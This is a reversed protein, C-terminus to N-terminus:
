FKYTLLIESNNANLILKNDNNGYRKLLSKNKKDLIVIHIINATFTVAAAALFINSTQKNVKSINLWKEKEIPDTQILYNEYQRNSIKNFRIAFLCTGVFVGSYLISRFTQGSPSGFNRQGLGPIIYDYISLKKYSYSSKTETTTDIMAKSVQDAIRATDVEIIIGKERAENIILNVYDERAVNTWPISSLLVENKIKKYEFSKDNKEVFDMSEFRLEYNNENNHSIKFKITKLVEWENLSFQKDYINSKVYNELYFANGRYVQFYKSLKAEDNLNLYKEKIDKTTSNIYISDSIKFSKYLIPLKNQLQFLLYSYDSITHTEPLPNELYDTISSSSSSFLDALVFRSNYRLDIDIKDDLINLVSEYFLNFKYNLEEKFINIQSKTLSNIFTTDDINSNIDNINSQSYITLYNLLLLIILASKM